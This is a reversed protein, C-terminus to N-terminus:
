VAPTTYGIREKTRNMGSKEGARFRQPGGTYFPNHLWEAKKHAM